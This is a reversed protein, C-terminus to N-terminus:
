ALLNQLGGVLDQVAAQVALLSTHISSALSTVLRRRRTNSILWPM